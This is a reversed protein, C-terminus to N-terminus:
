SLLLSNGVWLFRLVSLFKFSLHICGFVSLPPLWLVPLVPLVSRGLLWLLSPNVSDYAALIGLLIANGARGGGLFFFFPDNSCIHYNLCRVVTTVANKYFPCWGARSPSGSPVSHKRTCGPRLVGACLPTPPLAKPHCSYEEGGWLCWARSHSRSRGIPHSRLDQTGGRLLLKRAVHAAAM